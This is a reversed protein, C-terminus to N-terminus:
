AVDVIGNYHRQISRPDIAIARQMDVWAKAVQSEAPDRGIKYLAQTSFELPEYKSAAGRILLPKKEWYRAFFDQPSVPCFLQELQNELNLM